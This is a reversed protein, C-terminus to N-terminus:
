PESEDIGKVQNGISDDVAELDAQLNRIVELKEPFVEDHIFANILKTEQRSDQGEAPIWRNLSGGVSLVEDRVVDFTPSADVVLQQSPKIVETNQESANLSKDM